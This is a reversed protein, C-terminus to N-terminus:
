MKILLEFDLCFIFIGPYGKTSMALYSVHAFNWYFINFKATIWLKWNKLCVAQSRLFLPAKDLNLYRVKYLKILIVLNNFLLEMFSLKLKVVRALILLFAMIFSRDPPKLYIRLPKTHNWTAEPPKMGNRAKTIVTRFVEPNVWKCSVKELGLIQALYLLSFSIINFHFINFSCM